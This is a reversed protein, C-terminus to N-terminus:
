WKVVKFIISVIPGFGRLCVRTGWSHICKSWIYIFNLICTRKVPWSRCYWWFWLTRREKDNKWFFEMKLTFCTLVWHFWDCGNKFNMYDTYLRLGVGNGQSFRTESFDVNKSMKWFNLEIGLILDIGIWLINWYTLSCLSHDFM